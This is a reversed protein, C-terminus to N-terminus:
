HGAGARRLLDLLDRVHGDPAFREEVRGRGAEGMKEALETSSLIEKLRAALADVDGPPVLYGTEGDALWEPIGGSRAGVVPRGHAMAEIGAMCFSERCLSPVAVVAARAYLTSLERRSVWGHFRVRGEVGLERALAQAAPLDPGDGAVDLKAEPPLLTLARLLVDLGKGSNVRGAFLVTSGCDDQGTCAARSPPQTFHPLVAVREPLFGNEVLLGKIFRSPCAMLTRRRHLARNALLHRILPLGVRPDRPMCRHRYARAQCLWSLPYPCQEPVGTATARNLTKRGEPCVIQVDHVFRVMPAADALLRVLARQFVKHVLIADPREADLVRRVDDLRTPLDPCGIDTVGPVHHAALGPAPLGGARGFLLASEHGARALERAVTRLYVELGGHEQYLNVHLIKM